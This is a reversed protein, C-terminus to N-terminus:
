LRSFWVGQLLYWSSILYPPTDKQAVAVVSSPIAEIQQLIVNEPQNDAFSLSESGTTEDTDLSLLFWFINITLDVM